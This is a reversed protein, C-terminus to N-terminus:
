SNNHSHTEYLKRLRTTDINMNRGVNEFNSIIEINEITYGLEPDIREISPSVGVMNYKKLFYKNFIEKNLGLGYNIPHGSIKCFKPSISRLQKTSDYTILARRQLYLNCRRESDRLVDGARTLEKAFWNGTVDAHRRADVSKWTRPAACTAMELIARIGNASVGAYACIEIYEDHCDEYYFNM